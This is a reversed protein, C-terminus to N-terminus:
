SIWATSARLWFTIFFLITSAVCMGCYDPIGIQFIPTSFNIVMGDFIPYLMTWLTLIFLCTCKFLNDFLPIYGYGALPADCTTHNLEEGIWLWFGFFAAGLIILLNQIFSLEIM